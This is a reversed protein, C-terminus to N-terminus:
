KITDLLEGMASSGAKPRWPTLQHTEDGSTSFCNPEYDCQALKGNGQLGLAPQTGPNKTQM